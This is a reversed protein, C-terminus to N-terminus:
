ADGLSLRQAAAADRVEALEEFEALAQKLRLFHSATHPHHKGYIFDNAAEAVEILALVGPDGEVVRPTYGKQEAVERTTWGVYEEGEFDECFVIETGDKLTDGIERPSYRARLESLLYRSM